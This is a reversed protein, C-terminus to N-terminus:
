EASTESIAASGTVGALTFGFGATLAVGGVTMATSAVLASAVFFTGAGLACLAVGAIAMGVFFKKWSWSGDFQMDTENMDVYNSPMTMEKTAYTM